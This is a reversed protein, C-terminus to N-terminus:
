ITNFLEACLQEFEIDAKSYSKYCVPVYFRDCLTYCEKLNNSIFLIGANIKRCGSIIHMVDKRCNADFCSTVRDFIIMNKRAAQMRYLLQCFSSWRENQEYITHYGSKITERYLFKEIRKKIIFMKSILDRSLITVKEMDSLGSFEGNYILEPCMIFMGAKTAKTFTRIVKGKMELGYLRNDYLRKKIERSDQETEIYIGVIENEFVKIDQAIDQQQLNKIEFLLEGPKAIQENLHNEYVYGGGCMAWIKSKSYDEKLVWGSVKHNRLTVIRDMKQLVSDTYDAVFVFSIHPYLRMIINLKKWFSLNYFMQFNDLFILKADQLVAKLIELLYIETPYLKYVKTHISLDLELQKLMQKLIYENQSRKVMKLGFCPILCFINDYVSLNEILKSHESVYFIGFKQANSISYDEIIKGNIVISGKQLNVIGSLAQALCSRERSDLSCIGVKEGQVFSLTANELMTKDKIKIIGRWIRLIEKKIM